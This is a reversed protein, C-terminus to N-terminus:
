ARPLYEGLVEWSSEPTQNILHIDQEFILIIDLEFRKSGGFILCAIISPKRFQMKPM